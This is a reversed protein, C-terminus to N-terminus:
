RLSLYKKLHAIQKEDPNGKVFFGRTDDQRLDSNYGIFVAEALERVKWGYPIVVVSMDSDGSRLHVHISASEREGVPTRVESIAVHSVSWGKRAVPKFKDAWYRLRYIKQEDDTPKRRLTLNEPVVKGLNKLGHYALSRIDYEIEAISDPSHIWIGETTDELLARLAAESDDGPFKGLNAAAESREGNDSSKANKLYRARFKEEAPVAFLVASMAYYQKHLPTGFPVDLSIPHTIPSMAWERCVSLLAERGNVLNMERDYVPELAADLPIVSYREPREGSGMPIWRKHMRTEYSPDAFQGLAVQEDTYHDKWQTLFVLVDGKPYNWKAQNGEVHRFTFSIQKLKLGKLNETVDLVCDEYLVSKWVTTKVETIRGLAVIKAECVRWELSSTGSIAGRATAGSSILLAICIRVFAIARNISAFCSIM